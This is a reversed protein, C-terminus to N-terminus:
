SCCGKKEQDPETLNLAKEMERDERERLLSAMGHLSERVNLGSKASTEYFLTGYEDALQIGDKTRIVRHHDDSVLDMKNGVLCLVSGGEVGDQVSTMWNRVNRFSAESTVDYMILVGDAKRFYQKTISRFREQGATDWLQLAIYQGEVRLSRVQFDVGITASFTARFENSCFRHIFSSKGVGSDGVFVVKFVRQPASSEEEIPLDSVDTSSNAGVPQVRPTNVDFDSDVTTSKDTVVIYNRKHRRSSGRRHIVPPPPEGEDDSTSQHRHNRRNRRLSPGTMYDSLISGQKSLQKRKMSAKAGANSRMANSLPTDTVADSDCTDDRHVHGAHNGGVQDLGDKRRLEAEDKDDRLRRNMDRLMDLQKVLSERELAIGESIQLAAMARERKDDRQQQRLQNIYSRSEHLSRESQLLSEELQEKEKELLENEQKTETEQTNINHLKHEMDQHTLLLDQLQRDKETLEREMEDRLQRERTKEEALIREKEAKIQQEMEEYLKRVEEDHHITKNRLVSELTQYDMHTRKLEGTVRALFEEFGGLLEPEEKRLRQWLSQLIDVNEFLEQAGLGDMVERFNSGDEDEVVGHENEYVREASGSSDVSQQTHLPPSTLGLFSGFGDTFEELTLYGNSDDDLSDFVAELQDPVLPLEEQLRQMDRKTIFGKEERDCLAFLEHAKQTMMEKVDSETVESEMVGHDTYTAMKSIIQILGTTELSLNQNKPRPLGFKM